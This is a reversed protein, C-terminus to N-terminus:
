GELAAQQPDGKKSKSFLRAFRKKMQDLMEYIIPVIVLTLITSTTLGGIVVVALGKGILGGSHSLGLALPFMAAITAGATMLIPRLRVKGAELLAQRVVYGEEMLQQARDILVIANTVVIGILMMFGIMSTIDLTVGTIVLGILGGIAALPLSFLVAFPASANGFGLVMILYVVAVAVVMAVILQSFSENIDASVGQVEPSVGEPLELESLAVSVMTSIRSKDDSNIKATVKVLQQQDERALSSASPKEYIKAIEKLLVTSGNPATLPINGLKELSNKFSKEMTIKTTYTVNDIKLDGLEQEQIWQRATDMVSSVNFGYARASSPDVAIEVETKADSLSDEVESLEPFTELKEKVMAAAKELQEQNEGKLSYSFDTTGVDYGGGISRSDVTSGAPLEALIFEKVQEGVVDPQLSENVEVLIQSAYPTREEDDGAYGVFAEVFTFVPQGLSDKKDQLIQELEKTIVNTAEFSTEYPLKLQYSMTHSAESSPLFSVKLLPASGVISGIFIIATLLLTKVRHNLCWQLVREYFAVYRRPKDEAHGKIKSRLVLLKALMPIVTLAVLLSSLLACAITIAFPKFFGGVIGSIMGIPAFVGVTALTSSTIAMSVQKTALAIVSENREQAKELSAYINEIVVISDDVVRGIAIFIGGLTMTNLTLGFMWMCLLTILISLPLSVLVILTMRVNRLFVLIMISALIAGLIGENLLGSISERIEDASDYISKFTVNPMKTEWEQLLGHIDDSFEVANANEAKYLIIGIAPSGDMRGIFKSETIANISAVQSLRVIDGNNTTIELQELEYITEMNGTVRANKENDDIEVSGIPSESVAAKIANSVQPLSLGYVTLADANLEIDLSTERDGIVEMHDLGKLGELQPKITDNFENDLDTQSMGEKAYLALYNTAMSSAGFTLVRPTDASAPLSIQAIQDEIDQKKKDTDVNEKFQILIQSFNNFSTSSMMDIDELNALKEELPETVNEVVDQPAGTYTTQVIVLPFSVNPMNEQKLQSASYLGSGFLIIMIIFLASVNKMSFRIIPNM